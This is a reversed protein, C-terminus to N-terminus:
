ESTVKVLKELYAWHSDINQQIELLVPKNEEKFLHKFRGQTKLFEVIPKREKPRYNIKWKGKECELLPWFGTEVALKAISVTDEPKYRWGRHCLSLVNLFAPGEVAFAKESKTVLDNWNSACAQAVYPINHAAVIATLDKRNQPKGYSEKGAPATTTSAGTPTASSRQIGTNHVVFGDAIFNHEGEVRLDLTPEKGVSKIKTIKETKFNENDILFDQYKYQNPYKEVNWKNKKSFCIYGYESDKLLKRNVCMTGKKKKQMHIKGVRYDMTQLLLRLNKLLSPSASVYRCSNDIRYGDSLMLGEVFSEKEKEPLNFMWQPVTKHKAGSGIDMSDIFNTLNVSNTYVYMDDTKIKSKFLKKHLIKFIKRAKTNKPLVFGVEGKKSRIWGDGVYIGLYKMLDPNSSPPLNIKNLRNVKYDRTTVIKFIFKHKENVDLKKLVVVEDGIKLNDVTKWIFHNKKGRGNRKLILFPHNGTAKISHHLTDIKFVEKVGNDFVGTCKKLVPLHKKRDFAYVEEGVKIDTIKRLGNKTTIMSDLSLCNMYGENDYCVYVFNHGRELAGSLSQLGIDYTGGDGGFAVFKIDKKIKGKKKLARYATEVGSITASVNEFANHIFPVNWATFPYITTAVELCGTASAAVVPSKTGMLVQRVTISAGCGSCLRHGPGLKEPIKSLEKINAM